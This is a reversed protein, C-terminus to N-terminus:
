LSVIAFRATAYSAYTFAVAFTWCNDATASVVVGFRAIASAALSSAHLFIVIACPLKCASWARLQCASSFYLFHEAFILAASVTSVSKRHSAAAASCDFAKSAVTCCFRVTADKSNCFAMESNFARLPAKFFAWAALPSSMLAIDSAIWAWASITECKVSSTEVSVSFTLAAICTRVFAASSNSAAMCLTSPKFAACISSFPSAMFASSFLLVKFCATRTASFSSARSWFFHPSVEANTWFTVSM